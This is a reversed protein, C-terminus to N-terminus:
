ELLPELLAVVEAVRRVESDDLRELLAMVQAIRRARGAELVRRGKATARVRSVRADQADGRRTVYGDQELGSVLRTMTPPAVLETAALEGLTRPGGFVLVSLVSARAPTLGTAADTRRVRRLLHIALAHL